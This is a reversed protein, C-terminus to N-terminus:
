HVDVDFPYYMMIGQMDKMSAAKKIIAYNEPGLQQAIEAESKMMNMRNFAKFINNSFEPMIRLGYTTLNAKKAAMAIADDLSGMADVLGLEKAQIGSYVHGQAISDVFEPKLHRGTAM